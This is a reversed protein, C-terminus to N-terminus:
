GLGLLERLVAGVTAADAQGSTQKMVQGTLFGIAQVKGSAVDAVAAPNAAIVAEAATRIADTDSIRKFGAEAVIAAVPRAARRTGSSSRRPTPAPCSAARWWGCWPM